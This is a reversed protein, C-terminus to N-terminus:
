AKLAYWHAYFEVMLGSSSPVRSIQSDFTGETLQIPKHAEVENSVIKVKGTSLPLLGLTM